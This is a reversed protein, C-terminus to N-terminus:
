IKCARRPKHSYGNGNGNHLKAHCNLCLIDCKKVEEKISKLSYRRASGSHVTFRKDEPKRHHFSLCRIDNESCQICPHQKKYYMIYEKKRAREQKRRKVIEQRERESVVKNKSM